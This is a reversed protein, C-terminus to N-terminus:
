DIGLLAAPNKRFMLDVDDEKIGADLLNKMVKKLGEVPYVQTTQGLDSSIITREAGVAKIMEILYETTIDNIAIVCTHEIYAGKDAFEVM